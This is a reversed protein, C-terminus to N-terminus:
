VLGQLDSTDIGDQQESTKEKAKGKMGKKKPEVFPTDLCVADVLSDIYANLQWLNLEMIEWPRLGYM